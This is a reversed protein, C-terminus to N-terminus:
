IINRQSIKSMHVSPKKTVKKHFACKAGKHTSEIKILINEEDFFLTMHDNNSTERQHNYIIMGM